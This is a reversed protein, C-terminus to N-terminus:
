PKPDDKNQQKRKTSELKNVYLRNRRKASRIKNALDQKKSTFYIETDPNEKDFKEIYYLLWFAAEEYSDCNTACEFKQDNDYYFYSYYKGTRNRRVGKIKEM